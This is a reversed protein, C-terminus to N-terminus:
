EEPPVGEQFKSGPHMPLLDAPKSRIYIFGSKPCYDTGGTGQEEKKGNRPGM